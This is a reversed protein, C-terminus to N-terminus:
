LARAILLAVDKPVQHHKLCLLTTYICQQRQQFQHQYSLMAEILFNVESRDLKSWFKTGYGYLYCGRGCEYYEQPDQKHRGSSLNSIRRRGKNMKCGTGVAKWLHRMAPVRENRNRYLTYLAEHAFLYGEQAAEEWLLLRVDVNDQTKGRCFKGYADGRRMMEEDRCVGGWFGLFPRYEQLQPCHLIMQEGTEIDISMRLVAYVARPDTAFEQTLRELLAELDTPLDCLIELWFQSDELERSREFCAVARKLKKLSLTDSEQRSSILLYLGQHHYYQHSHKTEQEERVRLLETRFGSDLDRPPAPTKKPVPLNPPPALPPLNM